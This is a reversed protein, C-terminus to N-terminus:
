SVPQPAVLRRTLSNAAAIAQVADEDDRAILIAQDVDIVLGRAQSSSPHDRSPDTVTIDQFRRGLLELVKDLTQETMGCALSKSGVLDKGRVIFM